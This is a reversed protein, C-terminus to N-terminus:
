THWDHLIKAEAETTNPIGGKKLQGFKKAIQRLFQDESDFDPITYKLMLVNKPVRSLIKGVTMSSEGGEKSFCVGPSDM